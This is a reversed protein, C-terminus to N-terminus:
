FNMPFLCVIINEFYEEVPVLHCIATSDVHFQFKLTRPFKPMFSLSPQLLYYFIWGILNSCFIATYGSIVIWMVIIDYPPRYRRLDDAVRNNVWGNIWVCILSFMLAGRWQGKHPSNVPSRRNRRVFPWYRPFHKWQCRWWAFLTVYAVKQSHQM